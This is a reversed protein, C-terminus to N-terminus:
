RLPRRRHRYANTLAAIGLLCIMAGALKAFGRGFVVTSNFIMFLFYSQLLIWWGDRRGSSPHMWWWICDALWIAAFAYNFYVGGGFDIGVRAMTQRQTDQMAAAHSWDHHFHFAAALHAFLFVCGASWVIRALRSSSLTRRAMLITVAVYCLLATWITARTWLAGTSM